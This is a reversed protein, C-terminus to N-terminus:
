DRQFLGTEEDLCGAFKTQACALEFVKDTLWRKFGDDDSFKRFLKSDDNMVSTMVHQLAKDHEIRANDKDPSQQANGPRSMAPRRSATSYTYTMHATGSVM